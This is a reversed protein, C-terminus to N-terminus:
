IEVIKPQGFQCKEAVLIDDDSMDMNPDDVTEQLDNMGISVFRNLYGPLDLHPDAGEPVQVPIAVWVTKM